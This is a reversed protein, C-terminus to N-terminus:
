GAIRQAKLELPVPRLHLDRVRGFGSRKLWHTLVHISPIFWVKAIKVYRRKPCLCHNEPGEIVLTELILEGGPAVLRRM